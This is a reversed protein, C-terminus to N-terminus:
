INQSVTSLVFGKQQIKEIITALSIATCYTPHMLILDGNALKNTARSIIKETDQDRWDITDKSWMITKYGLDSAAELTTSSFSGSPPAFLNMNINAYEKVLKHTSLIETQNQQYNLTAHDKHFYGHNGIEHGDEVISLFLEPNKDLWVGGIFFTAKVNMEKLTNLMDILYENGSYVNIMLSIKNNETNGNYFLNESQPAYVSRVPSILTLMSICLLMTIIIFNTSIPLFYKKFNFKKM